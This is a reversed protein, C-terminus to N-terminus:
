FLNKETRPFWVSEDFAYCHTQEWQLALDSKMADLSNQMLTQAVASLDLGGYEEPTCMINLGLETMQEYLKEPFENKEDYEGCVPAVENKLWDGVLNALEMNEKSPIM